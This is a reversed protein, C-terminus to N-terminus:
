RPYIRQTGLHQYQVTDEECLEQYERCKGCDENDPEDDCLDCYKEALLCHNSAAGAPPTFRPEWRKRGTVFDGTPAKESAGRKRLVLVLTTTLALVSGGVVAWFWWQKYIAGGSMKVQGLDVMTDAVFEVQKLTTPKREPVTVTIDYLGPTRGIVFAGTADTVFLGKGMNMPVGNVTFSAGTIPAGSGDVVIGAVRGLVQPTTTPKLTMEKPAKVAKILMPAQGMCILDEKEDALPAGVYGGFPTGMFAM